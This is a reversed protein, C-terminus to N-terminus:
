HLRVVKQPSSPIYNADSRHIRKACEGVQGALIAIQEAQAPGSLLTAILAADTLHGESAIRILNVFVGEDAGVCACAVDHRVLPRHATAVLTRLLCEFAHCERKAEAGPLARRYETWVQEQGAPGECWLRLNLVMNAEWAEMKSLVAVTAGGRAHHDTIM